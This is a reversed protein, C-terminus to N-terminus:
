RQFDVASSLMQISAILMVLITVYPTVSDFLLLSSDTLFVVISFSITIIGIIFGIVPIRKFIFMLNIFILVLAILLSEYM